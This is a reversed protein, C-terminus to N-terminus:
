KQDEIKYTIITICTAAIIRATLMGYMSDNNSLTFYPVTVNNQNKKCQSIHVTFSIPAKPTINTIKKYNIKEVINQTMKQAKRGTMASCNMSLNAITLLLLRKINKMVLGKIVGM